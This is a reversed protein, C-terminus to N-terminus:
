GFVVTLGHILVGALGGVITGNVRIFQLDRGVHLEIRRAADRGDWREVTDSIVSALERGYTRVLFGAVDQARRDIRRRLGSDTGLRRGFDRLGEDIRQRLESRPDEASELLASRVHDWVDVLAATVQPHTVLGSLVRDARRMTYPDNQLDRAFRTLLDDLGVRVQHLPNRRVDDVFAMVQDYVHEAIRQNVWRPTWTPARELVIAIVRRDNDKLWAHLNDFALDVARHHGGADVLRALLRGAPPSWSRQSLPRLLVHELLLAADDDRVNRLGHVAVRTVEGSVRDAHGPATLWEGLRRGVDARAVKERVVDEALFNEAVFEQLSRGLADKRTPIIATHPVPIGLPHRFLASVAFWDALAGIMSAEAGANVFGLFGDHGITLVYVVAAFLLLGTAVAKMRRLNRRRDDDSGGGAPVRMSADHREATARTATM